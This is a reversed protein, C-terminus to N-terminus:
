SMKEWIGSRNLYVYLISVSVLPVFSPAELLGFPISLLLGLVVYAAALYFGSKKWAFILSIGFLGIVGILGSLLFLVLPTGKAGTNFIALFNLLTFSGIGVLNLVLWTILCGGLKANGRRAAPSSAAANISAADLSPLLYGARSVQPQGNVM